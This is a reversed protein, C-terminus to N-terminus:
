SEIRYHVAEGKTKASSFFLALATRGPRTSLVLIRVVM